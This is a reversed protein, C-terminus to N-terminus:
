KLEAIEVTNTCGEDHKVTYGGVVMLQPKPQTFSAAFCFCRNETLSAQLQKWNDGEPDYIYVLNTSQAEHTNTSPKTGGIAFVHDQFAICVSRVYRLDAISEFTTGEENKILEPLSIRFVYKVEKPNCDEDYTCGGALYLFGRSICASTRVVPQPLSAVTFWEKSSINMVEVIKLTGSVGRGGAAILYKYEKDCITTVQKRAVTMSEKTKKWCPETGYGDARERESLCYLDGILKQTDDKILVGGVTHLVYEIKDQDVVPLIALASDQVPCEPIRKDWTRKLANYKLIFKSRYKRFYAVDDRVVADCPRSM